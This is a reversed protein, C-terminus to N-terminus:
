LGVHQMYGAKKSPSKHCCRELSQIVNLMLIMHETDILRLMINYKWTNYRAATNNVLNPIVHQCYSGKLPLRFHSDNTM